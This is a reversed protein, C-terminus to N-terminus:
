YCPSAVQCHWIGEERWVVCYIYGTDLNNGDLCGEVSGCDRCPGSELALLSYSALSIFLFLIGALLSKIKKLSM